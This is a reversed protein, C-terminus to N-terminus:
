TFRATGRGVSPSRSSLRGGGESELFRTVSAVAVDFRASLWENYRDKLAPTSLDDNNGPPDFRAIRM